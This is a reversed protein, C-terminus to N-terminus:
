KLYTVEETYLSQANCYFWDYVRDRGNGCIVSIIKLVYTYPQSWKKLDQIHVAFLIRIIIIHIIIKNNHYLQTHQLVYFFYLLVLREHLDCGDSFNLEALFSTISICNWQVVRRVWSKKGTSSHMSHEGMYVPSFSLFAYFPVGPM